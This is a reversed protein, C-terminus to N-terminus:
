ATASISIVGGAILFLLLAIVAAITASIVFLTRFLHEFQHPAVRADSWKDLAEDSPESSMGYDHRRWKPSLLHSDSPLWRRDPPVEVDLALYKAIKFVQAEEIFLLRSERKLNRVAVIATAAGATALLGLLTTPVWSELRNDKSLAVTGAVAGGILAAFLTYFFKITEWKRNNYDIRNANHLELLKLHEARTPESSCPDSM